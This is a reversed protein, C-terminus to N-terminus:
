PCAYIAKDITDGSPYTIPEYHSIFRDEVPCSLDEADCGTLVIVVVNVFLLIIIAHVIHRITKM